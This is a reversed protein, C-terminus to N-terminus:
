VITKFVFTSQHYYCCKKVKTKSKKVAFHVHYENHGRIYYEIYLHKLFLNVSVSGIKSEIVPRTIYTGINIYHALIFNFHQNNCRSMNEEPLEAQTARITIAKAIICYKLLRLEVAELLVMVM